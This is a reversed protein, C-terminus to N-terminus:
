ARRRGTATRGREFGRWRRPRASTPARCWDEDDVIEVKTRENMTSEMGEPPGDLAARLEVTWRRGLADAIWALMEVGIFADAKLMHTVRSPSVGLRRALEARSVGDTELADLISRRLSARLRSRPDTVGPVDECQVRRM